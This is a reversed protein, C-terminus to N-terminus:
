ANSRDLWRQAAAFNRQNRTQFGQSGNQPAKAAGLSWSDAWQDIHRLLNVLGAYRSRLHEDAFQHRIADRVHERAAEPGLRKLLDRLRGGDAGTCERTWGVLKAKPLAKRRMANFDEIVLTRFDDLAKREASVIRPKRDCPPTPAASMDTPERTPEKTPERTPETGGTPPLKQGLHPCSGDWNPAAETGPPPVKATGTPPLKDQNPAAETRPCCEWEIISGTRGRRGREVILRKGRLSAFEQRVKGPSIGLTEAVNDASPWCTERDGQHDLLCLLVRMERARLGPEQVRRLRDWRTWEEAM